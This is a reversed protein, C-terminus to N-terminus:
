DELYRVRWAPEPPVVRRAGPKDRHHPRDHLAVAAPPPRLGPGAHCGEAAAPALIGNSVGASLEVDTGHTALIPGGIQDHYRWVAAHADGGLFQPSFLM